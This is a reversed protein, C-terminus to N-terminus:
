KTDERYYGVARLAALDCDIERYPLGKLNQRHHMAEHAVIAVLQERWDRLEFTPCQERKREYGHYARPAYGPKVIKALISRGHTSYWGGVWTREAGSWTKKQFHTVRVRIGREIDLYGLTRRVLKNVERTPYESDNTIRIM